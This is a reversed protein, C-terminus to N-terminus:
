RLVFESLTVYHKETGTNMYINYQTPYYKATASFLEPQRFPIHYGVGSKLIALTIMPELFTNKGAYSGYTMTYTFPSGNLEPSLVDGWHKGMQPVGGPLAVYM